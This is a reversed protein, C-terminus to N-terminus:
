VSSTLGLVSVKHGRSKLEKIVPIVSRVHGGGYTVFFVKKM